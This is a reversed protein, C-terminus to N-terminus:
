NPNKQCLEIGKKFHEITELTRANGQSLIYSPHWTPMVIYKEKKHPIGVFDQLKDKSKTSLLASTAVMGLTFIVKPQVLGIQQFLWDSCISIDKKCIGKVMGEKVPRCNITNCIYVEKRKLEVSTLIRDLMRGNLKVMPEEEISEDEDPAEGVIMIDTQNPGIGPVPYFPMSKRFDCKECNRIEDRLIDLNITDM